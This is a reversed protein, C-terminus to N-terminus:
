EQIPPVFATTPPRGTRSETQIAFNDFYINESGDGFTHLGLERTNTYSGAAPTVYHDTRLIANLEMGSGLIPNSSFVATNYADWQVLTFYDNLPATDEVEDPPWRVVEAGIAERNQDLPTSNAAGNAGPDGYYVKIFNDKSRFGNVANVNARDQGLVLLVEGNQFTGTVNSLFITGQANGSTWSGSDVIPTGNVIGQANSIQGVVVEGDVIPTTGGSTYAISAAETLRIMLTLPNQTLGLSFGADELNQYALWRITTDGIRQWLVMLLKDHIDNDPPDPLPEPPIINDPIEDWYPVTVYSNGRVFSVGYSNNSTDLRFSIGAAFYKPIPSEPDYGHVPAEGTAAFGIKVQVDYSLFGGADEHVRALDITGPGVTFAILSRTRLVDDYVTGTVRLAKDGGITEIAHTGEVSQWPSNSLTDYDFPDHYVTKGGVVKELPVHYVIERSVATEGQGFTGTSHLQIFPMLTVRTATDVSVSFSDGPDYAKTIGTLTNGSKERYRYLSSSGEV